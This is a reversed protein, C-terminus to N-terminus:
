AASAANAAAGQRILQSFENFYSAHEAADPNLSARTLEAEAAQFHGARTLTKVAHLCAWTNQPQVQPIHVALVLEAAFFGLSDTLSWLFLLDVGEFDRVTASALEARALAADGHAHAILASYFHSPKGSKAFARTLFASSHSQSHSMRLILNRIMYDHYTKSHKRCHRIIRRFDRTTPPTATRCLNIVSSAGRGETLIRITDHMSFPVPVPYVGAYKSLIAAHRADAPEM